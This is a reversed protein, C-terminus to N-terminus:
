RSRRGCWVIRHRSEGRSSKRTARWTDGGAAKVREAAAQGCVARRAAGVRPGRRPGLVRRGVAGRRRRRLTRRGALARGVRLLRTQHVIGLMTM